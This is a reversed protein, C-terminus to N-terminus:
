AMRCAIPFRRGMGFAKSTVKFGPAAQRRKYENQNVRRVVDHVVSAEFGIAILEEPSRHEEIYAKLIADLTAYPPLTEQDTQNPRLEASPPKAIVAAPVIERERNIWDALEYVMTKPIDSLVALGGVMDGYITCYGVALESKNGTSLVIAGTRNSVTMLITGRIRAQLNEEALDPMTAGARGGIARRYADYIEAIPHCECRIGLTRALAEADRRSEPGSYPSPMTIGCVAAPGLAAVALAAVVSSDIGGSLGIVVTRFGCKAVYDRLGVVLAEHVQQMPAIPEATAAGEGRLEALTVTFQDERLFQATRVLRGQATMAFSHGYFVLEDNGGILNACIVPYQHETAVEAVVRRLLASKGVEFPSASLNLVVEAGASKLRAMPNVTYRRRGGPFEYAYWCDECISLGITVGRFTVVGHQRAPEFHREEDFVDYNPLLTKQQVHLIASDSVLAACNQTPRGKRGPHHDLYGVVAGIGQAARAITQLAKLNADVFAPIEVLDRPPYGCVTLEPFVVLDASERKAVGIRECIKATNGEIDGVTTNIQAVSFKM